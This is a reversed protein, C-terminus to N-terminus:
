DPRVQAPGGALPEPDDRRHDLLGYVGAPVELECQNRCPTHDGIASVLIMSVPTSSTKSPALFCLKPARSGRAAM